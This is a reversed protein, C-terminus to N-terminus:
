VTVNHSIHCIVGEAKFYLVSYPVSSKIDPPPPPPQSKEELFTIKKKRKACCTIKEFTFQLLIKINKKFLVNLDSFTLRIYCM